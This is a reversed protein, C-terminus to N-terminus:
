AAPLVQVVRRTGPHVIVVQNNVVTFLTRPDGYQEPVRYLPVGKPIRMGVAVPGSYSHTPIGYQHVYTQLSPWHAPAVGTLIQAGGGVVGGVVQAGGAVGGVLAGGAGGILGGIPGGSREGESWGYQMGSIPDDAFAAVPALLPLLAGLMTLKSTM